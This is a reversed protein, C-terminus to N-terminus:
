ALLGMLAAGFVAGAAFSSLVLAIYTGRTIEVIM